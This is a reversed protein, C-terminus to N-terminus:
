RAPDCGPRVAAMSQGFGQGIGGPGHKVGDHGDPGAQDQVGALGHHGIQHGAHAARALFALQLDVFEAVATQGVTYEVQGPGVALHQQVLEVSRQAVGM